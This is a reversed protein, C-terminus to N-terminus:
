YKDPGTCAPMDGDLYKGGTAIRGYIVMVKSKQDQFKLIDLLTIDLYRFIEFLFILFCSLQLMGM